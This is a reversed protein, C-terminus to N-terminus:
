AGMPFANYRWQSPQKELREGDRGAFVTAGRALPWSPLHKRMLRALLWTGVSPCTGYM